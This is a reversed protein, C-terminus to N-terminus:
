SREEALVRLRRAVEADKPYSEMTALPPPGALTLIIKKNEQKKRNESLLRAQM